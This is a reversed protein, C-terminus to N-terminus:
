LQRWNWGIFNNWESKWLFNEELPFQGKYFEGPCSGICFACHFNWTNTFAVLCTFFAHLICELASVMDSKYDRTPKYYYSSYMYCTAVSEKKTYISRDRLVSYRSYKLNLFSNELYFIKFEIYSKQVQPNVGCIYGKQPKGYTIRDFRRFFLSNQKSKQRFVRFLWDFKVVIWDFTTRWKTVTTHLYINIFLYM